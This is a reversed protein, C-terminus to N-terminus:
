KKRAADLDDRVSQPLHEVILEEIEALANVTTDYATAADANTDVYLKRRGAIVAMGGGEGGLPVCEVAIGSSKAAAILAEIRQDYM